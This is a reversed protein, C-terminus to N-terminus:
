YTVKEDSEFSYKSYAEDAYSGEKVKFTKAITNFFANSGIEELSAPLEVLSLKNCDAFAGMGIEKVGEPIIIESIPSCGRFSNNGISELGDKFSVNELSSCGSFASSKVAKLANGFPFQSLATCDEFASIGVIELSDGGTISSLNTASHFSSHGIEKVKSPIDIQGLSTCNGFIQSPIMELDEPLLVSELSSCDLFLAVGLKIANNQFAVFKLKDHSEFVQGYIETAREPIVFSSQSKGKDTLGTIADGLWTFNDDDSAKNLDVKAVEAQTNGQGNTDSPNDKDGCGALLTAFLLVVLLTSFIKKLM